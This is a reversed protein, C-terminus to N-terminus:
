EKDGLAKISYNYGNRIHLVLAAKAKESDMDRIAKLIAVHEDIIERRRKGDMGSINRDHLLVDNLNDMLASLRANGSGKIWFNHIGSNLKVFETLTQCNESRIIEDDIQKISKEPNNMQKLKEITLEIGLIELAERCQFVDEIEDKDYEQVVIGKWPEMKVFGEAALMRFAERVPTTSTNMQKAVSTENLKTGPCIDGNLILMKLNEYVKQHLTQRSIPEIVNQSDM